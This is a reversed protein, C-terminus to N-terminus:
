VNSESELRMKKAASEKKIVELHNRKLHNMLNITNGSTKVNTQCMKCKASGDSDTFFKWVSSKKKPKFPVAFHLSLWIKFYLPFQDICLYNRLTQVCACVFFFWFDFDALGCRDDINIRFISYFAIRLISSIKFNAAWIKNHM